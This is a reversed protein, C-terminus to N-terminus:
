SQRRCHLAFNIDYTVCTNQCAMAPKQNASPPFEIIEHFWALHICLRFSLIKIGISCIKNGLAYTRWFAIQMISWEWIYPGTDHNVKHWRDSRSWAKEYLYIYIYQGVKEDVKHRRDYHKSSAREGKWWMVSQSDSPAEKNYLSNRLFAPEITNITALSDSTSRM